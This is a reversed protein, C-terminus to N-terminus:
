QQIVHSSTPIPGSIVRCVAGENLESDGFFGEVELVGVQTHPLQVDFGTQPSRAVSGPVMVKLRDGIKLGQRPGGAIMVREGEVRLVGTTWPRDSLRRQIKDLVDVIAASIAKDDLTSDFGAQGGFGLTTLVEVAAEGTGDATFFVHSTVPDVLRVNVRARATQRKSRQFVQRDGTTERGFEVVSGLILADVGVLSRRFDEASVGALRREAELRNLDQRELVIFKGTKPLETALIDSAQKGHRDLQPDVFLGSGYRTENTFRAIAVKRKLSRDPQPEPASAIPAQSTGPPQRVIERKDVSACAGATLVLSLLLLASLSRPM